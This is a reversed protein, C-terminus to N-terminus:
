LLADFSDDGIKMTEVLNAWDQLMVKRPALYQAANYASRVEDDDGHALQMEVWDSDYMRDGSPKLAENAWTSAVGRMGHITAKGRWGITYLAQLMTTNSMADDGGKRVTFLPGSGGALEILREVIRVAQRSLPVLHERKMKMREKPVRWLPVAGGLDFEEATAFRIEQTRAWTLIVLEIALRTRESGFTALDRFFQPMDDLPVKAMHKTRPNPKLSKTGLDVLPNRKIAGESIAFQFIDNCYSRVRKAVTIADRDEIKRLMKLVEQPSIEDLHKKGFAKNADADIRSQVRAFHAPALSLRRHELWADAWAKFTGDAAKKTVARHEGPDKGADLLAKAAERRQRAAALSVQPYTGHSLTKEVRQFRYKQRWLKSGSSRILLYLGGSDSLKYDKDRPSASRITADNLPM